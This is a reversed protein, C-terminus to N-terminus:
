IDSPSMNVAGVEIPALTAGDTAVSRATQQSYDRGRGYAHYNARDAEDAIDMAQALTVPKHTRIRAQIEPKLGKLFQYVRDDDPLEVILARFRNIYASVTTQQRIAQYRDKVDTKHDFVKFQDLLMQKLDNWHSAKLIDGKDMRDCQLRWWVAADSDFLTSMHWVAREKDELGLVRM